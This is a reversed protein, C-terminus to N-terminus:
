YIDPHLGATKSLFTKLPNEKENIPKKMHSTILRHSLQM